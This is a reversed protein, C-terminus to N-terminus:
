DEITSTIAIVISLNHYLDLTPHLHNIVPVVDPDKSETQSGPAMNSAVSLSDERTGMSTPTAERTKSLFIGISVHQFADFRGRATCTHCEMLLRTTTHSHYGNPQPESPRAPEVACASASHHVQVQSVGPGQGQPRQEVRECRALMARSSQHAVQSLDGRARRECRGRAHFGGEVSPATHAFPRNTVTHEIRSIAHGAKHSLTHTAAPNPTFSKKEM